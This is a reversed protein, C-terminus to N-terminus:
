CFLANLPVTPFHAHRSHPLVGRLWCQVQKLAGLAVVLLAVVLLAVVLPAVVLLAVVLPSVVLPAIAM